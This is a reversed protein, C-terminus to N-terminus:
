GINRSYYAGNVAIMLVVVEVMAVVEALSIVGGRQATLIDEDGPKMVMVVVAAGRSSMMMAEDGCRGGSRGAVQLTM